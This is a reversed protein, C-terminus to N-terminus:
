AHAEGLARPRADPGRDNAVPLRVVFCAGSGLRSSAEIKGEQLDVIRKVIALGLGAGGSDLNRSKEVRYFRDFIHPLDGAPIGMGTDRVEVAVSDPEPAVMVSIRGGPPTHRIANDLLNKLAREILAVDGLVFPAAPAIQGGLAIGGNRAAIEFKQVVDQVLESVQFSETNM